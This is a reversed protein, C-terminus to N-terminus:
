DLAKAMCRKKSFAIGYCLVKQFGQAVLDKGYEKQRIQELAADCARQLDRALPSNAIKIEVVVATDRLYDIYVIYIQALCLGIM